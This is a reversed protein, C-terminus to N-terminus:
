TVQLDEITGLRRLRPQFPLGKSTLFPYEIEVYPVENKNLMDHYQSVFGVSLASCKGIEGNEAEILFAGKQSGPEFGVIKLKSEILHKLKREGGRKRKPKLILGELQHKLVYRWAKDFDTWTFPIRLHKYKADKGFGPVLEEIKRRVDEAPADTWDKGAVEYVEFLYFRAKSWNEKKNLTLVNGMPVAVEGRGLFDCTSLEQAIHQYRDVARDINRESLIHTGDWTHRSGDIKAEIISNPALRKAESMPIEKMDGM